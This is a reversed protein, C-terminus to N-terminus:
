NERLDNSNTWLHFSGFVQGSFRDKILACSLIFIVSGAELIENRFTFRFSSSFFFVPYVCVCMFFFSWQVESKRQVHEIWRSPLSREERNHFKSGPSIRKTKKPQGGRGCFVRLPVVFVVSIRPGKIVSVDRTLIIITAGNSTMITAEDRKTQRRNNHEYIAALM